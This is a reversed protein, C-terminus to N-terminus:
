IRLCQVTKELGLRLQVNTLRKGCALLLKRRWVLDTGEEVGKLNVLKHLLLLRNLSKKGHDQVLRFIAVQEKTESRYSGLDTQNINQYACIPAM